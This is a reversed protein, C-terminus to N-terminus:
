SRVKALSYSGGLAGGLLLYRLKLVSRIVTPVIGFHRVGTLPSPVVLSPNHPLDLLPRVRSLFLDNFM